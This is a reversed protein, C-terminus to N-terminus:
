QPFREEVRGRKEGNGRPGLSKWSMTCRGERIGGNDCRPDHSRGERRGGNDCRPDSSRRTESGETTVGRITGSVKEDGEM